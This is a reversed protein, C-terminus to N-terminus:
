AAEAPTDMETLERIYDMYDAESCFLLYRGEAYLTYTYHSKRIRGGAPPFKQDGLLMCVRPDGRCIREPLQTKQNRESM